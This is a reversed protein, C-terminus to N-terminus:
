FPENIDRYMASQMELKQEHGAALGVVVLGQSFCILRTDPMSFTLKTMGLLRKQFINELGFIGNISV